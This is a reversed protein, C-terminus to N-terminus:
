YTSLPISFHTIKNTIFTLSTWFNMNFNTPPLTFEDLFTLSILFKDIIYLFLSGLYWKKM